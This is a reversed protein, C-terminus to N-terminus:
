SPWDSPHPPLDGPALLELSSGAALRDPFIVINRGGRHRASPVLIAEFGAQRSGRGIAQTWSEVRCDVTENSLPRAHVSTFALESHSLVV